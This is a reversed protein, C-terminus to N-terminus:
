EPRPGPATPIFLSRAQDAIRRCVSDSFRGEVKCHSPIGPVPEPSVTLDLGTFVKVQVAAIGQGLTCHQKVEDITTSPAHYVSLYAENRRLKFAGSGPSGDSRCSRWDYRRLLDDDPLVAFPQEM